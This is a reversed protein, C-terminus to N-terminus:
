LDTAFMKRTSRTSKWAGDATRDFVFVDYRGKRTMTPFGAVSAHKLGWLESIPRILEFAEKAEQDREADTSDSRDYVFELAFSDNDMTREEHEVGWTLLCSTVKVMRGSPLKQERWLPRNEGGCGAAILLWVGFM